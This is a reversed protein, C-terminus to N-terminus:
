MARHYHKGTGGHQLHFKVKLQPETSRPFAPGKRAERKLKQSRTELLEGFLSKNEKNLKKIVEGVHAKKAQSNSKRLVVTYPMCLSSFLASGFMKFICM